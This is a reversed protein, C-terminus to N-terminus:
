LVTLTDPLEIRKLRGNSFVVLLSVHYNGPKSFIHSATHIDPDEEAYQVGDGFIWNRQVIDGDTQDIFLFEKPSTPNGDATLDAATQTSYPSSTSDVYFFPPAEDSSVKIYERKTVIGQAGTSTVINLKVTYTGETIYTHIPNKELSTGGDGFDWLYRVIHGTTFNQFRVSLPPVGKIPFARFLPKPALFRTEQAKLIGNLSLPEPREKVGLNNEINIIADKISNHVDANVSNTVITKGDPLWRNQQSGSFGRKLDQFTNKTKKDYYILEPASPSGTLPGVRIIGRSPFGTTDEVIVVKSNYNLTQKLVTVANNSVEYLTDKTDIAEPFVSLDGTSYGDDSASIRDAM